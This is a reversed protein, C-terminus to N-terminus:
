AAPDSNAHDVGAGYHDLLYQRILATRLERRSEQRPSISDLVEIQTDAWRAAAKFREREAHRHTNEWDRKKAPDAYPM